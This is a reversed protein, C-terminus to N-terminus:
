KFFIENCILPLQWSIFFFWISYLWLLVLVLFRIKTKAFFSLSWFSLLFWLSCLILMDTKSGNFLTAYTLAGSLVALFVLGSKISQSVICYVSVVAGILGLPAILYLLYRPDLLTSFNLFFEHPTVTFKNHLVKSVLSDPNNEYQRSAEVGATISNTDFLFSRFSACGTSQWIRFAFLSLFLCAVIVKTVKRAVM